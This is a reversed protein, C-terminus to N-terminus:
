DRDLGLRIYYEGSYPHVKEVPLSAGRGDQVLVFNYVGNATFLDLHEKVDIRQKEAWVKGDTMQQLLVYCSNANSGSAKREYPKVYLSVTDM